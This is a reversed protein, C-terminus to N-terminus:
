RYPALELKNIIIFKIRMRIPLHPSTLIYFRFRNPLKFAIFVGVEKGNSLKLCAFRTCLDFNRPNLHTLGVLRAELKNTSLEFNINVSLLLNCLLFRLYKKRTSYPVRLQPRVPVNRASSHDAKINTLILRSDHKGRVLM